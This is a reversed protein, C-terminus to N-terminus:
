CDCRYIGVDVSFFNYWEGWGRLLVVNFACKRWKLIVRATTVAYEVM